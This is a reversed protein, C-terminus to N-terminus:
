FKWFTLPVYCLLILIYVHLYMQLNVAMQAVETVEQKRRQIIFCNQEMPVQLLIGKKEKMLKKMSYTIICSIKNCIKLECLLM